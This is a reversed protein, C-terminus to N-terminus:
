IICVMTEARMLSDFERRQKWARWARQIAVVRREHRRYHSAPWEPLPHRRRARDAEAAEKAM